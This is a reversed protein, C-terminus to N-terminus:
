SSLVTSCACLHSSCLERVKLPLPSFNICWRSWIILATKNISTLWVDQLYQPFFGNIKGSPTLSAKVSCIVNWNPPTPLGGMCLSYCSLPVFACCICLTQSNPTNSVFTVLQWGLPLDPRCFHKTKSWLMKFYKVPLWFHLPEGYFRSKKSIKMGGYCFWQLQSNQFGDGEGGSRHSRPASYQNGTMKCMGLGSTIDGARGRYIDRLRPDLPKSM